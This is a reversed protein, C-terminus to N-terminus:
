KKSVPKKKTKRQYVKAKSVKTDGKALIKERNYWWSIITTSPIGFFISADQASPPRYTKGDIVEHPPSGPLSRIPNKPRMEIRHCQLYAIVDRKTQFTSKLYRGRKFLGRNDALASEVSKSMSMQDLPKPPRGRGRGPQSAVLPAANPINSSGGSSAAHPSQPIPTPSATHLTLLSTPAQIVDNPRPAGLAANGSISPYRSNQQPQQQQQQQVPRPQVAATAIIPQSPLDHRGTNESRPAVFTTSPTPIAVPMWTIQQPATPQFSM